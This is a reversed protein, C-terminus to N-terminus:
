YESEEPMDSLNEIDKPINKNIYRYISARVNKFLPNSGPNYNVPENIKNKEEQPAEEANPHNIKEKNATKFSTYYINKAKVEFIINDEKVLKKAENLSKIKMEEIKCSHNDDYDILKDKDNYKVYAKCKVNKDRYFRCRFTKEGKKSTNTYYLLYKEKEIICEQNKETLSKKYVKKQVLSEM